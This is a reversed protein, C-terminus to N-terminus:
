SAARLRGHLLILLGLSWLCSLSLWWLPLAVMCQCLFSLLFSFLRHVTNKSFAKFDYSKCLSVKLFKYISIHLVTSYVFLLQQMFSSHTHLHVCNLYLNVCYDKSLSILLNNRFLCIISLHNSSSIFLTFLISSLSPYILYIISLYILSSHIISWLYVVLHIFLYYLHSSLYPVVPLHQSVMYTVYFIPPLCIFLHYIFLTHLHVLSLWYLCLCHHQILSFLVLFALYRTNCSISM